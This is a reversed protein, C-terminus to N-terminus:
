WKLKRWPNSTCGNKVKINYLHLIHKEQNLVSHIITACDNRVAITKYLMAALLCESTLQLYILHENFSYNSASSRFSQLSFVSHIIGHSTFHESFSYNSALSRLFPSIQLHCSPLFSLLHFKGAIWQPFCKCQISNLFRKCQICRLFSTCFLSSILRTLKEDENWM